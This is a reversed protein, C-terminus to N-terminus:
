GSIERRIEKIARAASVTRTQGRKWRRYRREAVRIWAEDVRSLPRNDLGDLLRLALRERDEAPLKNIAQEIKKAPVTM